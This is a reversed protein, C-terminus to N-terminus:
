GSQVPTVKVTAAVTDGVYTDTPSLNIAIQINRTADRLDARAINVHFSGQGRINTTFTVLKYYHLPAYSTLSGGTYGTLERVWVGYTKNPLLTIQGNIVMAVRGSPTNITVHGPVRVDTVSDSSGGIVTYWNLRQLGAPDVPKGAAAPTALALLLVFVLGLTLIMWRPRPKQM